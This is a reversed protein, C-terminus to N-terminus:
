TSSSHIQLIRCQEANLKTNGAIINIRDMNDKLIREEFVLDSLNCM